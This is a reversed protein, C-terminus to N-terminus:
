NYKETQSSGHSIYDFLLCVVKTNEEMQKAQVTFRWSQTERLLLVSSHRGDSVGSLAAFCVGKLELVVLFTSGVFQM